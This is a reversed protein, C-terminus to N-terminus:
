STPAAVVLKASDLRVQRIGGDSKWSIAVSISYLTAQPASIGAGTPADPDAPLTIRAAPRVRVSYRFGEGEDGDQEAMTRAAGSGVAVQVAALRSRAMAVARETHAAVSASRMGAVVGDFMIGLALAAIIFAVLVELLTFGAQRPPPAIRSM